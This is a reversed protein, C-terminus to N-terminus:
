GIVMIGRGVFSDKVPRNSNKIITQSSKSIMTLLTKYCSSNITTQHTKKNYILQNKIKATKKM